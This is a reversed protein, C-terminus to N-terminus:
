NLEITGKYISSYLFNECYPVFYAFCSYTKWSDRRLSLPEGGRACLYTCALGCTGFYTSLLNHSASLDTIAGLCSIKQKWCHASPPM